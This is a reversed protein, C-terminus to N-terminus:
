ELLTIILIYGESVASSSSFVNNLEMNTIGLALFVNIQTVISQKTGVDVRSPQYRCMFGINQVEGKFTPFFQM